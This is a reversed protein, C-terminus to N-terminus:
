NTNLHLSKGRLSKLDGQLRPLAAITFAMNPKQTRRLVALYPLKRDGDKITVNYIGNQMRAIM